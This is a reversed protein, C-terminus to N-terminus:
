MSYMTQPQIYTSYDVDLESLGQKNNYSSYQNYEEGLAVAEVLYDPYVSMSEPPSSCTTSDPMDMYSYSQDLASFGFSDDMTNGTSMPQVEPSYVDSFPTHVESPSSTSCYSPSGPMSGIPSEQPTMWQNVFNLSISLPVRGYSSKRPPCYDNLTFDVQSSPSTELGDFLSEFSKCASPDADQGDFSFSSFDIFGSEQQKLPYVLEDQPFAMPNLSYSPDFQVLGSNPLKIEASSSSRLHDPEASSSRRRHVLISSHPLFSQKAQEYDTDPLPASSSRRYARETIPAEFRAVFEPVHNKDFDRVADNLEDGKKGNCLLEVIKECRKIDKPETERVRRKKRQAKDKQNSPRFAYQPWKRRHEEQAEKAKAHWAQREDNPLNQWTMGIIKSLTSHNTEIQSSVHQSKIFSSRFLIFANPPRPIYGSGKRGRPKPNEPLVTEEPPFIYATPPHLPRPADDTYTTPTVNTTFEITQPSSEVSPVWKLDCQSEFHSPKFGDDPRARSSRTSRKTNRDAPM